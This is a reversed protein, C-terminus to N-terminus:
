CSGVGKISQARGSRDIRIGSSKAADDDPRCLNLEVQSQPFLLQGMPGYSIRTVSGTLDFSNNEGSGGNIDGVTKLEVDVGDMLGNSNADLFITWGNNWDGGVPLITTMRVQKTSESRAMSLDSLMNNIIGSSKNNLSIERFSPVAVTALIALVAVAIVLEFLTVGSAVPFTVHRDNQRM